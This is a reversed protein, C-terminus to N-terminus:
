ANVITPANATTATTWSFAPSSLSAVNAPSLLREGSSANQRIIKRNDSAPM